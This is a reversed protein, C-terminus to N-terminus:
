TGPMAAPCDPCRVKGDQGTALTTAVERGCAALVLYDRHAMVGRQAPTDLTFVESVQKHPGVRAAFSRRRDERTANETM